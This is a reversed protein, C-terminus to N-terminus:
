PPGHRHFEHRGSLRGPAYNRGTRVFVSSPKHEGAHYGHVEDGVLYKTVSWFSGYMENDAVFHVPDDRRLRAFYPEWVDDQYLRPDAVDIRELPMTWPDDPPVADVLATM